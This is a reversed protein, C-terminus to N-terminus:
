WRLQDSKTPEAMELAEDVEIGLYRVASEPKATGLSIRHHLMFLACSLRKTKPKYITQTTPNPKLNTSMNMALGLALWQPWARRATEPTAEATLIGNGGNAVRANERM